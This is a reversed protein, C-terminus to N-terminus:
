SRDRRTRPTFLKHSHTRLGRGKAPLGRDAALLRFLESFGFPSLCGHGTRLNSRPIGRLQRRCVQGVKWPRAAPRASRRAPHCDGQHVRAQQIAMPYITSPSSRGGPLEGVAVDETLTISTKNIQGDSFAVSASQRM